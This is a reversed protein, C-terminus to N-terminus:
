AETHMYIIEIESSSTSSNDSNSDSIVSDSTDSDSTASINLRHLLSDKSKGPLIEYFDYIDRKNVLVIVRAM